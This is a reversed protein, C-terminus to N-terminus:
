KVALPLTFSFTSGNGQVSSVWITGGHLEVIKKVIALGFGTSSEGGTPRASLKKFSRFIQKLDEESLGQGTDRIHIVAEGSRLEASVDVRGGPYTYKIANSLLNDMVEAMRSKDALVQPFEEPRIITLAIQKQAAARKHIKECDDLIEGLNERHLSLSVKGAEIASIDLLETILHLMQRASSLVMEMDRVGEEAVFQGSRIDQVLLDTFGIIAGLPNRLDHAAVGLFENKKENLEQLEELMRAKLFATKIPHKLKNLLAIDEEQFADGKLNEFLIYGEIRQETAIEIMMVSKAAVADEPPKGFQPQFVILEDRGNAALIRYHKRIESFYNDAIGAKGLEWGSIAKLEVAENTNDYVLISARDVARIIKLEKLIADLLASFSIESNIAQVIVNVKELEDSKRQLEATRVRVLAELERKQSEILEKKEIEKEHEMREQDLTKRALEEKLLSVRQAIGLSLLIVKVTAGLQVGYHTIFNSPFIGFSKFAYVAIGILFM